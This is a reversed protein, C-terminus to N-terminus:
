FKNSSRKSLVLVRLRGEPNLSSIGCGPRVVGWGTKWRRMEAKVKVIFNTM